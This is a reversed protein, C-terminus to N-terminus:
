DLVHAAPINRGGVGPDPHGDFPLVFAGGNWKLQYRQKNAELCEHFARFRATKWNRYEDPGAYFGHVIGSPKRTRGPIGTETETVSWETPVVGARSLRIRYDTDEFYAPWFLEDFPGITKWLHVDIKFCSFGSALVIPSPDDLMKAFTDPAVRCDDNLLIVTDVDACLQMVRNWGGACGLNTAPADITADPIPPLSGGNNVILLRSPSRSSARIGVLTDQLINSRMEYHVIGVVFSSTM